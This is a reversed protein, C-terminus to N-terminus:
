QRKRYNWKRVVATIINSGANIRRDIDKDIKRAKGSRSCNLKNKNEDLNTFAKSTNRGVVNNRVM